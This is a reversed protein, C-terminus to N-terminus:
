RPGSPRRQPPGQGHRHSIAFLRELPKQEDKLSEAPVHYVHPRHSATLGRPQNVLHRSQVRRGPPPSADRWPAPAPRPSPSELRTELRRWTQSSYRGFYEPAVERWAELRGVELLVQGVGHPSDAFNIEARWRARRPATCSKHLLAEPLQPDVRQTLHILLLQFCLRWAVQPM